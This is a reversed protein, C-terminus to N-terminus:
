FVYGDLHIKRKFGNVLGDFTNYHTNPKWYDMGLIKIKVDEYLEKDMLTIFYESNKNEVIETSMGDARNAVIVICEGFGDFHTTSMKVPLYRSAKQFKWDLNSTNVNIQM